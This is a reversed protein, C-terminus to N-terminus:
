AQLMAPTWIGNSNVNRFKSVEIIRKCFVDDNGPLVLRDLAYVLPSGNCAERFFMRGEPERRYNNSGCNGWSLGARTRLNSATLKRIEPDSREYQVFQREGLRFAIEPVLHWFMTADYVNDYPGFRPEMSRMFRAMRVLERALWRDPLRYLRLAEREEYELRMQTEHSLNFKFAM